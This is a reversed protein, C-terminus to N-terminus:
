LALEYLTNISQNICQMVNRQGTAAREVIAHMQSIKKFTYKLADCVFLVSLGVAGHLVFEM